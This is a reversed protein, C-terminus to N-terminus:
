HKHGRQPREAMDGLVNIVVLPIVVLVALSILLSVVPLPEANTLYGLAVAVWCIGIGWLSVSLSSPFKTM